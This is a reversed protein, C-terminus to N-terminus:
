NYKSLWYTIQKISKENNESSINSKQFIHINSLFLRTEREIEFLSDDKVENKMVASLMSVLSGILNNVVDM